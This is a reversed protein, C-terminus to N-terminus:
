YKVYIRVSSIGDTTSIAVMDGSSIKLPNEATPLNSDIDRYRTGVGDAGLIVIQCVSASEEIYLYTETTANFVYSTYQDLTSPNGNPGYVTDDQVEFKESSLSYRYYGDGMDIGDLIAPNKVEESVDDSNVSESDTNTTDFWGKDNALKSVGGIAFLCVGFILVGVLLSKKNKKAM